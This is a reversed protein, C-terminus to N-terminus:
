DWVAYRVSLRSPIAQLKKMLYAGKEAAQQPPAGRGDSIFSGPIGRLGASKWRLDLRAYRPHSEEREGGILVAGMPLGGALSKACCLLDPTIGFHQYAFM